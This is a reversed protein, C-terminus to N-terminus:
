GLALLNSTASVSFTSVRQRAIKNFASPSVGMEKKFKRSFFFEDSYGVKRAIERVLLDTDRLLQTAHGIRLETLYDTAGQGFAKKFADGF